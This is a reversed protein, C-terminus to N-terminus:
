LQDGWRLANLLSLNSCNWTAREAVVVAPIHATAVWVWGWPKSSWTEPRWSERWSVWCPSFSQSAWTIWISSVNRCCICCFCIVYVFVYFMMAIIKDSCSVLLAYTIFTRNKEEVIADTYKSVKCYGSLNSCYLDSWKLVIAQNIFEFLIYKM